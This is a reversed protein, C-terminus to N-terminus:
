TKEQMKAKNWLEDLEELSMEELKSNIDKAKQEMFSFRRMFKNITEHLAEEADIDVFRAINVLAFFVDGLEEKQGKGKRIAEKFESMEESVKDWAGDISPWDFGVRAAKKQIKQARYLSPFNKPVDLITQSADQEQAKIQDWKVLVQEATEAHDKGFVHPHRRVMKETVGCVVDCINFHGKEQALQAHFVIQLLLDGLEECLKHMDKQDIADVVEYAEEIIYKKLSEHNQEKDWPCGNDGRLTKMVEVLPDLSFKSNGGDNSM